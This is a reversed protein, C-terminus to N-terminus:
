LPADELLGDIGFCLLISNMFMRPLNISSSAFSRMTKPAMFLPTLCNLLIEL